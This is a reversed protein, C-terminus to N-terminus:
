LSVAGKMRVKQANTNLIADDMTGSVAFYRARCPRTQGMRHIRKIAQYNEDPVWSPEALAVEAAVQLNLAVGGATQQMLMVRGRGASFEDILGQRKEPAVSGDIYQVGFEKLQERFFAMVDLHYAFLVIQDYQGLTLEEAIAAAIAPAKAEGLLRRATASPTEPDEDKLLEDIRADHELHHVDVRLPPLQLDVDAETRRLMVQRLLAVLLAENKVGHVRPGYKTQHWACFREFWERASGIGAQQLLEPWLARMPAYLEYPNNPMPTGSLLWAQPAWAACRLTRISRQAVARKVYHAEDAIVLDWSGATEDVRPDAYSMVALTGTAPGFEAWERRWNECASAPALVLTRKPGVRKAADCAQATKGLGPVDGLYARPAGALWASGDQQYPRLERM